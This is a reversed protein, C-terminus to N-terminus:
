LMDVEGIFKNVQNIFIYPTNLYAIFAPKPSYPRFPNNNVGFHPGRTRNPLIKVFRGKAASRGISKPTLFNQSCHLKHAEAQGALAM